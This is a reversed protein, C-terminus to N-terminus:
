IIDNSSIVILTSTYDGQREECEHEAERADEYPGSVETGDETIVWFELM